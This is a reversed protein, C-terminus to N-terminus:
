MGQKYGARHRPIALLELLSLARSAQVGGDSDRNLTEKIDPTLTAM